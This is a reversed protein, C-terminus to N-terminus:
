PLSPYEDTEGRWYAAIQKDYAHKKRVKDKISNKAANLQKQKAKAGPRKQHKHGPTKLSLVTTIQEAQSVGQNFDRKKM